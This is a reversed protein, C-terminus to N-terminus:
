YYVTGNEEREQLQKQEYKDGKLRFGHGSSRRGVVNQEQDVDLEAEVVWSM